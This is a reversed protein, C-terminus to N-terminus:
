LMTKLKEADDLFMRVTEKSYPHVIMGKLLSPTCTVIHAGASLWEIINLIERTSGIIIQSKLDLSDLLSRLKIIEDCANYGMNNVRGGFLSVYTAGALAALLCQQASMMATVNVRVNHVTELEHIVELNDMEGNPGHITIKVNINPALEALMRAEDIMGQRDNTTVEVSLPLPAILKAIEVTRQIVGKMGGTVGSGLMITPNTTVGRLFGMRRYVEIDEIKGTDLFIAM